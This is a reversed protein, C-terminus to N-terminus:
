GNILCRRIDFYNNHLDWHDIDTKHIGLKLDVLIYLEEFSNAMVEFRNKKRNYVGYKYGVCKDFIILEYKYLGFLCKLAPIISESFKM